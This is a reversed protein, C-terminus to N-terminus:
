PRRRVRPPVADWRRARARTHAVDGGLLARNKLPRKFRFKLFRETKERERPEPFGGRPNTTGVRATRPNSGRMGDSRGGRTSVVTGPRSARESARQPRKPDGESSAAPTHRVFEGRAGRAVERRTPAGASRAGAAGPRERRHAGLVELRAGRAHEERLEPRARALARRARARARVGRVRVRGVRAGVAAVEARRGDGLVEGVAGLGLVRGPVRRRVVGPERHEGGLVAGGRRERGLAREEVVGRKVIRVGEAIGEGRGAAMAGAADRAADERVESPRVGDGRAGLGGEVGGGRCRVVVVVVVVVVARARAVLSAAADCSKKTGREAADGGGGGRGRRAAEDVAQFRGDRLVGVGDGGPGGGRRVRDAAARPERLGKSEASSSSGRPSSRTSRCRATAGRRRRARTRIRRTRTRPAEEAAASRPSGRREGGGGPDPDEEPDEPNGRRAM